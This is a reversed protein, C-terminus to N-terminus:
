KTKLVQSFLMGGLEKDVENQIKKLDIQPDISKTDFNLDVGFDISDLQEAYNITHNRSSRGNIARYTKKFSNTLRELINPKSHLRTNSQIKIGKKSKTMKNNNNKKHSNVPVRSQTKGGIFSKGCRYTKKRLREVNDQHVRDATIDM